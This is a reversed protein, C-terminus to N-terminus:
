AFRETPARTDRIVNKTKVMFDVFFVFAERGSRRNGWFVGHLETGEETYSRTVLEPSDSLQRATTAYSM